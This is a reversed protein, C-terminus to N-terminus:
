RTKLYLLAVRNQKLVRLVNMRDKRLLKLVDTARTVSKRNVDLIIDGPTLGAWSAISGRDVDIVVPHKERLPPLNFENALKKNYDSVRFGLDFPAKQGEYGKKEAISSQADDPHRGVVLDLSTEKKNRVVKVKVKNGPAYNQVERALDRTSTISKEGVQIVLDYPKMGSKDAPSDPVIQTILAGDTRDIGLSQASEKDLDQMLVGLFGRQISGNKELTPL